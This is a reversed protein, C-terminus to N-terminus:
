PRPRPPWWRTPTASPKSCSTMEAQTFGAQRMLERLLATVSSDPRPPQGDADVLDWYIRQYEPRARRGDRIDLMAQYQRAYEPQRLDCLHAGPPFGDLEAAVGRGAAAVRIAASAGPRLEREAQSEAMAVVVLTVMLVSIIFTITLL